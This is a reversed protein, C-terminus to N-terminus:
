RGRSKNFKRNEVWRGDRYTDTLFASWCPVCTLKDIYIVSGDPQKKPTGKIKRGCNLCRKMSYSYPENNIFTETKRRGNM